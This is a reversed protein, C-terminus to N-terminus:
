KKFLGNVTMAKFDWYSDALFVTFVLYLANISWYDSAPIPTDYSTFILVGLAIWYFLSRGTLARREHLAIRGRVKFMGIVYILLLPGVILWEYNHPDVGLYKLGLFLAWIVALLTFFVFILDLQYKRLIKM